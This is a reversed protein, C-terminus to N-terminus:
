FTADLQTNSRQGQDQLKKMDRYRDLGRMMAQSIWTDAPNPPSEPAPAPLNATNQAVAPTIAMQAVGSALPVTTQFPVPTNRIPAGNSPTVPMGHGAFTQYDALTWGNGAAKTGNAFLGAAPAGGIAAAPPLPPPAGGQVARSLPAIAASDAIASKGAAPLAVPAGPASTPASSSVVAPATAPVATPAPAPSGSPKSDAANAAAYQPADSSGHDFGLMALAHDGLDKGSAQELIANAVSTVLGVPGGLLIGGIMRAAPPPPADGTIARYITGVIPIHQLPNISSLVDSFSLSQSPVKTPDALDTLDVKPPAAVAAPAPNAPDQVASVSSM